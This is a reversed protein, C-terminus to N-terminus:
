ELIRQAEEEHQRCLFMLNNENLVPDYESM